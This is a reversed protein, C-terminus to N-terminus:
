YAYVPRYVTLIYLGYCLFVWWVTCYVIHLACWQNVQVYQYWLEKLRDWTREFLVKYLQKM